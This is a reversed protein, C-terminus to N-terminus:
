SSRGAFPPALAEDESRHEGGADLLVGGTIDASM